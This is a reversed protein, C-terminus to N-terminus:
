EVPQIRAGYRDAIETRLKVLRDHITQDIVELKRTAALRQAKVERLQDPDRLDSPLRNYVEHNAYPHSLEPYGGAIHAMFYRYDLDALKSGITAAQLAALFLSDKSIRDYGDTVTTRLEDLTDDHRRFDSRLTPHKQVFDEFNDFYIDAVYDGIPHLYEFNRTEHLWRLPRALLSLERRVGEIIPNLVSSIWDQAREASINPKAANRAM